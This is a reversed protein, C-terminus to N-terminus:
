IHFESHGQVIKVSIM